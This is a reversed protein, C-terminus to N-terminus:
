PLLGATKETSRVTASPDIVAIMPGFPAPLDVRNFAASPM